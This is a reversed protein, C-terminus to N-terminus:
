AAPAAADVAPKVEEEPEDSFAVTTLIPQDLDDVVKVNKGADIDKFFIVEGEEALHSIDIKIDHPLDLPLAEVFVTHRLIQLSGLNQKEFLSQGVLVLPVEARVIEDKSVALFDIHILHDTVPNLQIDHVLVLQDIKDGELEIATSKGAKHYTQVMKIKDVSIMLPQALHKGYVVGPVLGQKRLLKVKKGTVERHSVALKM